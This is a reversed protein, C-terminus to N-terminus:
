YTIAWRTKLWGEVDAVKADTMFEHYGIIEGISDNWQMTNAYTSGFSLGTLVGAGMAGGSKTANFSNTSTNGNVRMTAVYWTGDVVALSGLATGADSKLLDGSSKYFTVRNADTSGDLAFTYGGSATARFVAFITFPQSFTGQTFAANTMLAASSAMWIAACGNKVSNSYVGGVSGNAVIINNNGSKDGIYKVEDDDVCVTGANNTCLAGAQWWFHPSYDSPDTFSSAAASPAISLLLTEPPQAWCCFASFLLFLLIKMTLGCDLM